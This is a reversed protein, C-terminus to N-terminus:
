PTVAEPAATIFMRGWDGVTIPVPSFVPGTIVLPKPDPLCTQLSLYPYRQNILYIDLNRLVAGTELDLMAYESIVQYRRVSIVRYTQPGADYDVSIQDGIQVGAFDEGLPTGLHALLITGFEYGPWQMMAQTLGAWSAAAPPNGVRAVVPGCLSGIVCMALAVVSSLM